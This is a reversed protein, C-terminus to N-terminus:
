RINVSNLVRLLSNAVSMANTHNRELMFEKNFGLTLGSGLPKGVNMVNSPKEGSHINVHGKLNSRNIFAKKCENCKYPNEGAHIILHNTLSSRVFFAKGREYYKHPKEGFHISQHDVLSSNQIFM